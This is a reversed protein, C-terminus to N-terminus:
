SRGEVRTKGSFDGPFSNLYSKQESLSVRGSRECQRFCWKNMDRGSQANEPKGSEGEYTGPDVPADGPIESDTLFRDDDDRPRQCVGWAKRCNGDCFFVVADKREAAEWSLPGWFCVESLFFEPDQEESEARNM